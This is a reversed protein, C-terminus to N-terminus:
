RLSASLASTACLNEFFSRFGSAGSCIQVILSKRNVIKRIAGFASPVVDMLSPTGPELGPPEGFDILAM